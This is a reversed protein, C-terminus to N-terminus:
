IIEFNLYTQYGIWALFPALLIASLVDVELTLGIKYIILVDMVLIILLAIDYRTTKFFLITWIINFVILFFLIWRLRTENAHSELNRVRLTSWILLGYVVIWIIIMTHTDFGTLQKAGIPM